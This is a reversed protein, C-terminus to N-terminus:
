INAERELRDENKNEERAKQKKIGSLMWLEGTTFAFWAGTLAVPESGVQLFVYLAAAVFLTNLVIIFFVIWKSYSGKKKKM